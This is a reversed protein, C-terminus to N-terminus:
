REKLANQRIYDSPSMGVSTKFALNFNAKSNFGVKYAVSTVSAEKQLLLEKAQDIRFSNVFNSFSIELHRNLFESLQHPKINIAEAVQGLTLGEELYLEEDLMERLLAQHTADLDLSKIKSKKYKAKDIATELETLFEPYSHVMMFFVIIAVTFLSATIYVNIIERSMIAYLSFANILALYLLLGTFIRVSANEKLSRLNFISSGSVVIPVYFFVNYAGAVLFAYDLWSPDHGQYYQKPTDHFLEPAVLYIIPMLLFGVMGPSFSLYVFYNLRFSSKVTSLYYFCLSPGFLSTLPIFWYYFLTPMKVDAMHLYNSYLLFMASFCLVLLFYMNATKNKFTFFYFCILLAMGAGSLVVM